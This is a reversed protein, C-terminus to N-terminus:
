SKKLIDKLGSMGSKYAEKHKEKNEDSEILRERKTERYCEPVYDLGFENVGKNLCANKFEPLAPPWDANWNDLGHKIQGGSLGALGEAWETVATQEIGEIATSWKHGYRAQLKKFLAAIWVESLKAEQPQREQSKM